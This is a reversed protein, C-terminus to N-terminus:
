RALEQFPDFEAVKISESNIAPWDSKEIMMEVTMCPTSDTALLSGNGTGSSDPGGTAGSASASGDGADGASDLGRDPFEVLISRRRPRKRPLARGAIGAGTGASM